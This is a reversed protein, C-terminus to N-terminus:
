WSILMKATHAEAEEIEEKLRTNDTDDRVLLMYLAALCQSEM